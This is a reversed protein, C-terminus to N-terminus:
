RRMPASSATQTIKPFLALTNAVTARTVEEVPLHLLEALKGAVRAIYAPENRKGRYPVPALYPCDTELVIRELGVSQMADRVQVATKFTIVGGIGLYLGFREVYTKAQVSDGTFCHVVGHMEPTWEENLIEIFHQYADRQHFIVAAAHERAIRLQARLVDRQVEHPSHDYYYDLGIEGVAVVREDGLFPAFTVDLSAPADKAEHPHVGISSFEGFERAVQLARTSDALDCGVNVISTVGAARARAIAEPRDADFRRDHLHAHSDIM